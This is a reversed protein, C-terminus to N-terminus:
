TTLESLEMVALAGAPVPVTYDVSCVGPWDQGVIWATWWAVQRNPYLGLRLWGGWTGDEHVFDAYYSENWLDDPDPTHRSEDAPDVLHAATM